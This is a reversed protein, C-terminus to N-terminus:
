CPDLVGRSDTRQEESLLPRLPVEVTLEDLQIYFEECTGCNDAWCDYEKYAEHEALAIAVEEYTQITQTQSM